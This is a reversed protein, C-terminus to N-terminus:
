GNKNGDDRCRKYFLTPMALYGELVKLCDGENCGKNQWTAATLMWGAFLQDVM